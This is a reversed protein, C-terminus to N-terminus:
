VSRHKDELHGTTAQSSTEIVVVMQYWCHTPLRSFYSPFNAFQEMCTKYDIWLKWMHFTLALFIFLGLKSWLIVSMWAGLLVSECGMGHNIWLNNCQVHRLLSSDVTLVSFVYKAEVIEGFWETTENEIHDKNKRSAGYTCLVWRM